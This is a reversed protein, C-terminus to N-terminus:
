GLVSHIVDSVMTKARKLKYESLSGRIRVGPLDDRLADEIDLSSIEQNRFQTEVSRLRLPIVSVGGLIAHIDECFKRDPTLRAIVAINLIPFNRTGQSYKGYTSRTTDALSPIQVETVIEDERLATRGGGLFFDEPSILREGKSGIVKVCANLALLPTALDSATTAICGNAPKGLIAHNFTDVRSAHCVSGGRQRCPELSQRMFFNIHSQNYYYCKVTQCLNGGATGANKIQFTAISRVCESVLSHSRVIESSREIMRLPTLAGINLANNEGYRIYCLSTIPKISILIKPSIAHHRMNPILETGGALIRSEDGYKGLMMVAEPIDKAQIYEFSMIGETKKEGARSLM